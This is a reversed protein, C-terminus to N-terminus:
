SDELTKNQLTADEIGYDLGSQIKHVVFCLCM